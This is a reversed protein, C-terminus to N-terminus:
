KQHLLSMQQQNNTEQSVVSGVFYGTITELSVKSNKGSTMLAWLSCTAGSTLVSKTYFWVLVSVSQSINSIIIM